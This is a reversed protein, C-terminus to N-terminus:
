RLAEIAKEEKKVRERAKRELKKVEAATLKYASTLLSKGIASFILAGAGLGLGLMIWDRSTMVM